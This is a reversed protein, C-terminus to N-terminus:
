LRDASHFDPQEGSSRKVARSALRIGSACLWHVACIPLYILLLPIAYYYVHGNVGSLLSMLGTEPFHSHEGTLLEIALGLSAASALLSGAIWAVQQIFPKKRVFIGVVLPLVYFLSFHKIYLQASDGFSTFLETALAIGIVYTLLFYLYPLKM